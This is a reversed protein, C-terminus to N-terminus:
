KPCPFAIAFAQRVLFAASNGREEPHRDIYGAFIEAADWRDLHEPPCAERTVDNRM